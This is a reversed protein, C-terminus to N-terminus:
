YHHRAGNRGRTRPSSPAHCPATIGGSVSTAHTHAISCSQCAKPVAMNHKRISMNAAVTAAREGARWLGGREISIEVVDIM